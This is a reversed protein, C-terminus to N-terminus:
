AITFAMVMYKPVGCPEDSTLEGIDNTLMVDTESDIDASRLWWAKAIGEADTKIRSDLEPDSFQPCHTNEVVVTEVREYYNVGVVFDGSETFDKAEAEIFSGPHEADRLWYTKLIAEYYTVNEVFSGDPNFNDDTCVIYKTGTWMFYTKGVVRTEDSTEVYSETPESDSTIRFDVKTPHINFVESQSLLYVKDLAIEAGTGDVSPYATKNRVTAITVAVEPDFKTLPPAMFYPKEYIAAGGLEARVDAMSRSNTNPIVIFTQAGNEEVLQYYTKDPDFEADETIEYEDFNLLNDPDTSNMWHRLASKAWRNGGMLTRAESSTKEYYTDAPIRSGLRLNTVPVFEGNVLTYYVKTRSTVYTDATLQYEEWPKDWNVPHGVVNVSAFTLSHTLNLDEMSVGDFRVVEFEMNRYNEDDSDTNITITDGLSFVKGAHGDRVIQTINEWSLEIPVFKCDDNTYWVDDESCTFLRYYWSGETGAPVHDHLANHRYQDRVYSDIVVVGDYISTPYSGSKRMLRTHKWVYPANDKPDAWRVQVDCGVRPYVLGNAAGVTGIPPDVKTWNTGDSVFIDGPKYNGVAVELQISRVNGSAPPFASVLTLASNGDGKDLVIENGGIRGLVKM